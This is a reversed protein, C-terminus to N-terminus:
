LKILFLSWYLHKWTFIAFNKLFSLKFFMQSLLQKQDPSDVWFIKKIVYAEAVRKRFRTMLIWQLAWQNYLSWKFIFCFRVHFCFQSAQKQNIHALQRWFCFKLIAKQEKLFMFPAPRILKLLRANCNSNIFYNHQNILLRISVSLRDSVFTPISRYSDPIISVPFMTYTAWVYQVRDRKQTEYYSM